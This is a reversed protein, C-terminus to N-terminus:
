DTEGPLITKWGYSTTEAIHPDTVFLSRYINGVHCDDEWAICFDEVADDGVRYYSYWSSRSSHRIKMHHAAAWKPSIKQFRDFCAHPLRRGPRYADEPCGEPWPFAGAAIKTGDYGPDPNLVRFIGSVVILGLSALFGRGWRKPKQPPLDNAHAYRNGAYGM